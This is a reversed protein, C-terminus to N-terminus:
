SQYDDLKQESDTMHKQNNTDIDELAKTMQNDMDKLSQYLPTKKYDIHNNDLYDQRIAQRQKELEYQSLTQKGNMISQHYSKLEDEEIESIQCLNLLDEELVDIPNGFQVVKSPTEPYKFAFESQTTNDVDIFGYRRYLQYPESPFELVDNYYNIDNIEISTNAKEDDNDNDDDDKFDLIIYEIVKILIMGIMEITLIGIIIVIVIKSNLFDIDDLSTDIKNIICFWLIGFLTTIVSSGIYNDMDEVFDDDNINDVTNKAWVFISIFFTITTVITIHNVEMETRITDPLDNVSPIRMILDCVGVVVTTLLSVFLVTLIAYIFNDFWTDKDDESETEDRHEEKNERKDFTSASSKSTSTTNQFECIALDDKNTIFCRGLEEGVGEEDYIAIEIADTMNYIRIMCDKYSPYNYFGYAEIYPRAKHLQEKDNYLEEVKPKICEYFERRKEKTDIIVKDLPSIPDIANCIVLHKLVSSTSEDRTESEEFEDADKLEGLETIYLHAYIMSSDDWDDEISIYVRNNKYCAIVEHLDRHWKSRGKLKINSEGHATKRKIHQYLAQRNDKTAFFYTKRKPVGTESSKEWENDVIMFEDNLMQKIIYNDESM